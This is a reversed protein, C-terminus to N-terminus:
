KKQMKLLNLTQYIRIQNQTWNPSKKKIIKYMQSNNFPVM